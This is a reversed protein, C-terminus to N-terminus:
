EKIQLNRKSRREIGTKSKSNFKIHIALIIVMLAFYITSAVIGECDQWSLSIRVIWALFVTILLGATIYYGRKQKKCKSACVISHHLRVDLGMKQLETEIELFREFSTMIYLNVHQFYAYWILTLLISFVAILNVEMFNNRITEMFSIGFLTFSTAMFISGITWRVSDYHNRNRHCAQYEALFADIRKKELENSEM